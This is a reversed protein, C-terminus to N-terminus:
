LPDIITLPTEGNASFSLGEGPRLNLLSMLAFGIFEEGAPATTRLEGVRRDGQFIAAPLPPIPGRGRVKMLRRRLQGMSKLRAMVEQGLYCGKTYSIADHDLGGENALESPGIDRPVAAIGGEIRLREMTAAPIQELHVTQQRVTEELGTTFVFERARAVGRRATFSIVTGGSILAPPFPIDGVVTVASWDTTVDEVIVDDAIIFAELRERIVSAPCSYSGIWFEGSTFQGVFSDALVRGKHNLWLGYVPREPTLGRLENTFQGQLFAASDEGSVRLFAAPKWWFVGRIEESSENNNSM